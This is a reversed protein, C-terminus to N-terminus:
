GYFERLESPTAQRFGDEKTLIYDADKAAVIAYPHEKTFRYGKVVFLPNDRTMKILYPQDYNQVLPQAVAIPPATDPAVAAGAPLGQYRPDSTDWKNEPELPQSSSAVTNALAPEYVPAVPEPKVEPHQAVYDDWTVGGEVFAALLVKKKNKDEEEVPLAFDELASRYLETPKLDEFSTPTESM